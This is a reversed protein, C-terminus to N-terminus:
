KINHVVSGIMGEKDNLIFAEAGKIAGTFGKNYHWADSATPSTLYTVRVGRYDKAEQTIYKQKHHLHGLYWERYWTDAWEKPAEQAMILPLEQPKENNGHTLGLLCVGWKYYKRSKPGNNINVNPNKEFVASLVEGLYYTREYDHNGYVMIVDVPAVKSLRNISETLLIHGEKFLKQWRTDDQMPTGHTTQAFPTARDSNFYDNGSPLLIKKINYGKSKNVLDEIATRFRDKAIEFDYDEGTEEGWALKGLHLDFINIVLLNGQEKLNEIKKVEWKFDNSFEEKLVILDEKFEELLNKNNSKVQISSTKDRFWFSKVTSPDIGVEQCKDEIFKNKKGRYLARAEYVDAVSCKQQKAIKNAGMRAMYPHTSFSEILKEITKNM